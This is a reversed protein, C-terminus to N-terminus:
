TAPARPSSEAWARAQASISWGGPACWGSSIGAIYFHEDFPGVRDYLARDFLYFTGTLSTREFVARDFPRAPVDITRRTTFLGWWRHERLIAYPFYILACGERIRRQGEILAAAERADDANWVGICRGRAARM